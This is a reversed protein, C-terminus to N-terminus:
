VDVVVYKTRYIRFKYVSFHKRREFKATAFVDNSVIFFFSSRSGKQGADSFQVPWSDFKLVFENAASQFTSTSHSTTLFRHFVGSKESAWYM